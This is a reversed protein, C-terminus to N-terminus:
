ISTTASEVADSEVSDTARGTVQRYLGVLVEANPTATYTKLFDARANHGMEALRGPESMAAQMTRALEGASHTNFTYGNRGHRVLEALAGCDSVIAPTGKAFAEVVVLGFSEYWLSPTILARAEGMLKFVESQPKYGLWEIWPMERVAEAVTPALPGDGVVKLPISPGLKRCADFLLDIGKEESLRGVFLCYNGRHEGPGPDPHVFGPKVAIRAAAFGAQVFKDRCFRSPAIYLDVMKDWTGFARHIALMAAVSASAISSHRYCAHAVGRWPVPSGVCSECVKGDRFLLANPCLIRYNHLTQIVPVGAAKAAYYVSPSVLPFTNHCHVVDCRTDRILQAIKRYSGQSWISSLGAGIRTSLTICNNDQHYRHVTHGLTELVRSEMEFVTDEGGPEKYSNHVTIVVM